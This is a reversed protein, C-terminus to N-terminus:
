GVYKYVWTLVGQYQGIKITKANSPITLKIRNYKSSSGFSGGSQANIFTGTEDYYCVVAVSGTSNPAFGWAYITDTANFDTIVLTKDVSSTKLSGDAKLLYAPEITDHAIEVYDDMSVLTKKKLAPAQTKDTRGQIHIHKTGSPISIQKDKYTASSIGGLTNGDEYGLLNNEDDWYTIAPCTGTSSPAYGSAFYIDNENINSYASLYDVQGTTSTMEGTNKDYYGNIQSDRTIEINSSFFCAVENSLESDEFGESTAKVALKYVGDATVLPSLNFNIENNDALLTYADKCNRYLEYETANTINNGKIFLAM